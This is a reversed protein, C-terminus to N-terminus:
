LGGDDDNCRLGHERFITTHLMPWSQPKQGRQNEPTRNNAQTKELEDVVLTDEDDLLFSDLHPRYGVGLGDGFGKMLSSMDTMFDLPAPVTADLKWKPVLGLYWRMRRQPVCYHLTNVKLAFYLFGNDRLVEGIQTLNSDGQGDDLADTNELGAFLLSDMTRVMYRVGCHFSDVTANGTLDKISGQHDKAKPHFHSVSTCSFGMSFVHPDTQVFCVKKHNNCWATEGSLHEVKIFHCPNEGQLRESQGLYKMSSKAHDCTFLTETKLNTMQEANVADLVYKAAEGYVDSGSCGSALKL